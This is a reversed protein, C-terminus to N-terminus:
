REALTILEQLSYVHSERLNGWTDDFILSGDPLIDALGPLRALTEGNKDLMLGYREGQATIYETILCGDVQTVYTLYDESALTGLEKGSKRDYVTPTGHLPSSIRFDETLLEEYLTEDPVEGQQEFLLKGDAASYARRLGNNYIIELYRGQETRRYQQDYVEAADPIQVEQLVTGDMAYLRFADYRFLMVTGDERSVRAENHLFAPDYAFLQAEPHDQLQYIWLYPTDGCVAVAYDGAMDLDDCRKCESRTDLLAAEANFFVCAGDDTAVMTHTGTRVFKSIDAQTYAMETQEGTVPDLKVLIDETSVYVGDKDAAALFPMTSAFGGTQTGNSIDVVAFVSQEAGTASFAFYQGHFGGGFRKFDSADFIELDGARDKLDFICLGGNVFSVALHSGDEDLAFLNDEPDAFLDNVTVSQWAAHFTVTRLATGDAANYVAALNEDKYVAAVTTGDGSLSIGTAPKGSWLVRNDALSYATLAEDGAYILMQENLFVSDALASPQTKLRVLETGERTDFVLLEGATHVAARTGNPSLRTKLPESPLELRWKPKFGDKLDYVGLADTLAKQAQTKHSTDKQLATLAEDIAATMNGEQYAAQSRGIAELALKAAREAEKAAQEAEKAAREAAEAQEAAIRAAEAEREMMRSGTLAGAGGALFLATILAAAIVSKRKHAKARRDNKHLGRFADLMEEATQFRGAPDPSMAKGIIEAVALSVSGDRIQVVDKADQAPRKGTLLHYLTAGLSYIDSRIDLMVAGKGATGSRSSEVLRSTLRTEPSEVEIETEADVDMQTASISSYDIGYHEPSAYGRSFGARVAGEEGLALAINFDILRIDGQPTVMINAPKIDGHLIGHPPRSHLYALAELLQCAWRIVTAQEFREGRKLPKDLSEGEIYDMVTYVTDNEMVFDYVQPIYTQSLNKLADVERRLVEERTTLTRKDAKLVVQKGLRLHEALYVVGAGGSGIESLIKYTSAIIRPM